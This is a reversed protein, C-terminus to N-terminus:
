ERIKRGGIRLIENEEKMGGNRRYLNQTMIWFDQDNFSGVVEIMSQDEFFSLPKAVYSLPKTQVTSEIAFNNNEKLLFINTKKFDSATCCHCM